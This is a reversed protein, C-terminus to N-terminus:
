RVPYREASDASVAPYSRVAWLFSSLRILCTDPAPNRMEVPFEAPLSNHGRSRFGRRQDYLRAGQHTKGKDRVDAGGQHQRRGRLIQRGLPTKNLMLTGLIGFVIIMLLPVYSFHGVSLVFFNMLGESIYGGPSPRLALGLGNLVFMIGLTMIFPEIKFVTIGLGNVMGVVIGMVLVVAIALLMSSEMVYSYIVTSFGAVAGVSLDFGASLVVITQAFGIM